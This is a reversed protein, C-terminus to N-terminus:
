IRKLEYYFEKLYNYVNEPVMDKVIEFQEQRCLKRVLSSSINNIPISIEEIWRPAINNFKIPISNLNEGARTCVIIRNERIFNKWNYWTKLSKMNDIGLCIYFEHWHRGFSEKLSEITNYTKPPLRSDVDCALVDMGNPVAERILDCRVHGPILIEKHLAVYTDSAPIFYVKAASVREKAERAMEIHANTIPNFSGPIFIIDNSM